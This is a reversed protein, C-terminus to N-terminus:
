YMWFTGIKFVGNALKSGRVVIWYGGVRVIFQAYGYGIEDHALETGRPRVSLHAGM